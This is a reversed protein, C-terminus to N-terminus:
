RSNFSLCLFVEPTPSPFAADPIKPVELRDVDRQGAIDHQESLVPDALAIQEEGDLEDEIQGQGIRCPLQLEGIEPIAPRGVMGRGDLHM